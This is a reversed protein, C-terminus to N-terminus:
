TRGTNRACNRSDQEIARELGEATRSMGCYDWVIKGLERHFSDVTRKGKISLLKSSRRSCAPWPMAFKRIRSRRGERAQQEGSLQRRHLSHHFIWGVLGADARERGVPERRSRFLESRGARVPRSDHEDPPLGGVPRGDHLPHGSLHADPVKIRIKMRSASTCTSCTATANRSDDERGLRKIADSFDLYVGLGAKAWAAAKMAFRRRMARLWTARFWTASARIDGSWIIIASPKRFRTRRGSTAKRKPVWIRGDNRLSESMLTLKSQYDGSVPICTPHIQTFCPNAFLAGRKHARWCATVNSGKANTSLIIFMATAARASCWRMPWIRTSKARDGPQAHRHRAGPRRDRDPGANRHASVDDCTGAQM